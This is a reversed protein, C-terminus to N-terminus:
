IFIYITKSERMVVKPSLYNHPQPSLQQSILKKIERVHVKLKNETVAEELFSLKDLIDM